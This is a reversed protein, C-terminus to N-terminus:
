RLTNIYAVVDHIAQESALTAAMPKMQNGFVDKPDYGRLGQQYHEIQRVLYWDNQGALKPGAMQELGEAQQGHCSACVAYAHEGAAADGKVTPEAPAGPLTQIYAILNELTAPDTVTMAMPRMQMGFTDGPRIGRLGQQFAEMQRRLYWAEQGAIRPANMAQNGEGQQGHCSACVAYAAKGAEVDADAHAAGAHVAAAIWVACTLALGVWGQHMGERRLM